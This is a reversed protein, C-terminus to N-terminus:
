CFEVKVITKGVATGIASPPPPGTNEIEYASTGIDAVPDKDALGVPDRDGLTDLERVGVLEALGVTVGVSDTLRVAPDAVGVLEIVADDVMLGESLLLGVRDSLIDGVTERGPDGVGVPM